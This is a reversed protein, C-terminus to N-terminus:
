VAAGTMDRWAAGDWTLPKALTTDYFTKGADGRYLSPRDTTNGVPGLDLYGTGGALSPAGYPASPVDVYSGANCAYKVGAVQLPAPGDAHVLGTETSARIFRHNTSM